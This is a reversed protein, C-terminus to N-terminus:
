NTSAICNCFLFAFTLENNIGNPVHFTTNSESKFYIQIYNLNIKCVSVMIM